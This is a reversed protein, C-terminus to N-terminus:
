NSNLFDDIMKIRETQVEVAKKSAQRTSAGGTGNVIRKALERYALLAKENVSVKGNSKFFLNMPKSNSRAIAAYSGSFYNEDRLM